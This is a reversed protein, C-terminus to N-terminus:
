KSNPKPTQGTPKLERMFAQFDQRHELPQFVSSNRLATLNGRRQFDGAIKAQRLLGVARSAYAEALRDRETMPLKADHAAGVSISTYSCAANYCTLGDGPAMAVGKDVEAVAQRYDGLLCIAQARTV